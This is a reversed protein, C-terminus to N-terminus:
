EKGTRVIEKKTAGWTRRWSCFWPILYLNLTGMWRVPLPSLSTPKEQFWRGQDSHEVVQEPPLKSGRTRGEACTKMARTRRARCTCTGLNRGSDSTLFSGHGRLVPVGPFWLWRCGWQVLSCSAKLCPRLIFVHQPLDWGYIWSLLCSM